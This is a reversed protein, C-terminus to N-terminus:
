AAKMITNLVQECWFEDIGGTTNIVFHPRNKVIGFQPYDYAESSTAKERGFTPHEACFAEMDKKDEFAVLLSGNGAYVM